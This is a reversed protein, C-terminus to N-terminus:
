SVRHAQWCGWKITQVCVCERLSSALMGVRKNPVVSPVMPMTAEKGGARKSKRLRNCTRQKAKSRHVQTRNNSTHTRAAISLCEFTCAALLKRIHKYAHVFLQTCNHVYKRECISQHKLPVGAHGNSFKSVQSSGKRHQRNTQKSTCTSTRLTVDNV